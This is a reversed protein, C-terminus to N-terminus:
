IGLVENPTIDLRAKYRNWTAIDGRQRAKEAIDKDMYVERRSSYPKLGGASPQGQVRYGQSGAKKYENWLGKIAFEGLAPNTLSRDFDIKQEQTLNEKAWSMMQQYNEKGGVVSYARQTQERVEYAGLKLDKEDIGVEQAKALIEDTLQMGNEVFQPLIDNLVEQQKMQLQQQEQLKQAESQQQKEAQTMERRTNAYKAELERYSSIMDEVTKFKGDIMGDKIYQELGKTLTELETAQQQEQAQIEAQESPLIPEQGQAQEQGETQNEIQESM